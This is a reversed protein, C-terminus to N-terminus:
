RRRQPKTEVQVLSLWYGFGLIIMSGLICLGLRLPGISAFTWNFAAGLIHGIWFGILSLL